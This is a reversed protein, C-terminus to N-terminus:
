RARELYRLARRLTRPSDGLLGLGANCKFCLWGRFKGTAHCHDIHLRGKGSAGKGCSECRKPAKRTALVGKNRNTREQRSANIRETDRAYWEKMGALIGDRNRWYRASSRANIKKKNRLYYRAAYERRTQPDAWAM